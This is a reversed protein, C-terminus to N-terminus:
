GLKDGDDPGSPKSKTKRGYIEEVEAASRAEGNRHFWIGTRPMYPLRKPDVAIERGKSDRQPYVNGNLIEVM